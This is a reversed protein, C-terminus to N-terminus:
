WSFPLPYKVKGRTALSERQRKGLSVLHHRTYNNYECMIIACFRWQMSWFVEECAFPTVLDSDLAILLM